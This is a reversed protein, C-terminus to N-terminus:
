AARDHGDAAARVARAQGVLPKGARVQERAALIVVAPELVDRDLVHLGGHARELADQAVCCFSGCAPGSRRGQKKGQLFDLDTAYYPLFPLHLGHCRQGFTRDASREQLQEVLTREVLDRHLVDHLVAADVAIREIIVVRINGRQGLLDDLVLGRADHLLVRRDVRQLLAQLDGHFKGQLVSRGHQMKVIGGAVLGILVAQHVDAVAHHAAIKVRRKGPLSQRLRVPLDEHPKVLALAIPLDHEPHALAHLRVDHLLEPQQAVQPLAHHLFHYSPTALFTLIIQPGGAFGTTGMKAFIRGRRIPFNSLRFNRLSSFHSLFGDPNGKANM